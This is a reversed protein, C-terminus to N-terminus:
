DEDERLEFEEEEEFDDEMGDEGEEDREVTTWGEENGDEDEETEETREEKMEENELGIGEGRMEETLGDTIEISIMGSLFAYGVLGMLSTLIWLNRGRKLRNINQLEREERERDKADKERERGTAKDKGKANSSRGFFPVSPLSAYIEAGLDKILGAKNSTSIDNGFSDEEQFRLESWLGIRESGNNLDM